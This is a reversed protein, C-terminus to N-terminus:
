QVYLLYVLYPRQHRIWFFQILFQISVSYFLNEYCAQINVTNGPFINKQM